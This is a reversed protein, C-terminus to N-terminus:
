PACGLSTCLQKIEDWMDNFVHIPVTPYTIPNSWDSIGDPLSRLQQKWQLYENFQQDTWNPGSFLGALVLTKQSQSREHMWTVADLIKKRNERFVCECSEVDISGPIFVNNIIQNGTKDKHENYEEDTIVAHSYNDIVYQNGYEAYTVNGNEDLYAIVPM